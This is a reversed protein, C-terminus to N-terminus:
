LAEVERILADPDRLFRQVLQQGDEEYRVQLLLHFVLEDSDDLRNLEVQWRGNELRRVQGHVRKERLLRANVDILRRDCILRVSYAIQSEMVSGNTRGKETITYRQNDLSIHGTEVLESLAQMYEFYNIGDDCMAVDTLNELDVPEITRALIYLLLYKIEMKSQIFASEM